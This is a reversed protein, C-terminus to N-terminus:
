KFWDTFDIGMAELKQCLIDPDVTDFAKQLDLLVMGVYNGNAINARINDTLDILCTDTPSSKRFGSQHAYLLVNKTLTTKLKYM